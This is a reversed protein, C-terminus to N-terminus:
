ISQRIIISPINWVWIMLKTEHKYVQSVINLLFANKNNQHQQCKYTHKSIYKQKQIKGQYNYLSSCVFWLPNWLNDMTYIEKQSKTQQNTKCRQLFYTAWKLIEVLKAMRLDIEKCTMNFVEHKINEISILEM